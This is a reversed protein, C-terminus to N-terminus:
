WWRPEMSASHVQRVNHCKDPGFCTEVFFSSSFFFLTKVAPFTRNSMQVHWPKDRGLGTHSTHVLCSLKQDVSWAKVFIERRGPGPQCRSWVFWAGTTKMYFIVDLCNRLKLHQFTNNSSSDLFSAVFDRQTGSRGSRGEETQVFRLQGGEGKTVLPRSSVCHFPFPFCKKPHLHNM